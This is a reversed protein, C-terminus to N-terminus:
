YNLRLSFQILRAGGTPGGSTSSAGAITSTIKGFDASSVTANPNAFNTHNFLNFIDTRFQLKYRSHSLAFDKSGSLDFDVMGPGYYQDRRETGITDPAISTSFYTTDFAANPTHNHQTLRGTGVINPRDAFQNFGSYDIAGLYATFPMGSQVTAIGSASWGTFIERSVSNNWNLFAHGEGIPLPVVYYTVFRQRLDFDSNGYERGLNRSDSPLYSNASSGFYSSTNDLSHSVTYSSQLTIGQRGRYKVTFVMGNYGSSGAGSGTLIPGYQNYPFTQEYTASNTPTPTVPTVFPENKDEYVGLKRGM